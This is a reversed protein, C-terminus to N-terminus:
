HDVDFDVDHKVISLNRLYRYMCRKEITNLVRAIIFVLSVVMRRVGTLGLCRVDWSISRFRMVMM